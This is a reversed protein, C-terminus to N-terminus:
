SWRPSLCPPHILLANTMSGVYRMMFSVFQGAESTNLWCSVVLRCGVILQHM